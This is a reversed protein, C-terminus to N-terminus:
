ALDMVLVKAWRNKFDEIFKDHIPDAEQYRDHDDMSDFKLSIAYDWSHDTVPRSATKAPIGWHGSGIHPSKLLADLGAEFTARQDDTQHAEDLWFYVHHEM